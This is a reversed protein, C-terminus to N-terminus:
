IHLAAQFAGNVAASINGGIRKADGVIYCSTEPACHRLKEILDHNIKMGMALLVTDAEIQFTKGDPGRAVIGKDNVEVLSTEYQVSIGLEELKMPMESMQFAPKKMMDIIGTIERGDEAFDHAAEMGVDGAGVVVVKKGVKDRYKTEADAAWMVNSRTIGPISRPVLPDAGIAIIVADYGELKLLEADAATNLLIKAKGAKVAKQAQVHDVDPLGEYRDQAPRQRATSAAASVTPSRTSPSTTAASSSPTCRRSAPRGAGIVAVKKKEKAAPVEGDRLYSTMGSIPNVACNIVKPGGLRMACAHLAPM